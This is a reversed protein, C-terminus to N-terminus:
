IHGSNVIIQKGHYPIPGNKKEMLKKLILKPYDQLM